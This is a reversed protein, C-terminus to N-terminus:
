NFFLHKVKKKEDYRLRATRVRVRGDAPTSCHWPQMRKDINVSSSMSLLRADAISPFDPNVIVSLHKRQREKASIVM